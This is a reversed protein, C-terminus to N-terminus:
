TLLRTMSAPSSKERGNVIISELPNFGTFKVPYAAEDAILFCESDDVFDASKVTPIVLATFPLIVSDNADVIVEVIFSPLYTYSTKNIVAALKLDM